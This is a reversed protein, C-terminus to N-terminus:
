ESYSLQVFHDASNILELTAGFDIVATPTVGLSM